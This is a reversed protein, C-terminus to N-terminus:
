KRRIGEETKLILLYFRFVIFLSLIDLSNQNEVILWHHDFLANLFEGRTFIYFRSLTNPGGVGRHM